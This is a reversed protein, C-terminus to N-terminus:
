KGNRRTLLWQFTASDLFQTSSHRLCTFDKVGMQLFIEIWKGGESEPDVLVLWQGNWSQKNLCYFQLIQSGSLLLWWDTTVISWTPTIATRSHTSRESTSNISKSTTRSPAARRRRRTTTRHTRYAKRRAQVPSRVTHRCLCQNSVDTEKNQRLKKM